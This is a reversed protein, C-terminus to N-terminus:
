RPLAKGGGEFGLWHGYAERRIKGLVLGGYNRGGGKVFGNEEVVESV